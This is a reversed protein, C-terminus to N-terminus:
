GEYKVFDNRKTRDPGLLGNSIAEGEGMAHGEVPGAWFEGRMRPIPPPPPPPAVQQNEMSPPSVWVLTLEWKEIITRRGMWIWWFRGLDAAVALAILQDAPRWV